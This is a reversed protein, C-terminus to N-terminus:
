PSTPVTPIEQLTAHLHQSCLPPSSQVIDLSHLPGQFSHTTCNQFSLPSRRMPPPPCPQAPEKAPPNWHASAPARARSQSTSHKHVASLPLKPCLIGGLRGGQRRPQGQSSLSPPHPHPLPTSPLHLSTPGASSPHPPTHTHLPTPAPSWTGAPWGLRPSEQLFASFLLAGPARARPSLCLTRRPLGLRTNPVNVSGRGGGGGRRAGHLQARPLAQLQRRVPKDKKPQTGAEQPLGGQPRQRGSHGPMAPACARACPPGSFRGAERPHTLLPVRGSPSCCGPSPAEASHLPGSTPPPREPLLETRCRWRRQSVRAPPFAGAGAQATACSGLPRGRVPPAAAAALCASWPPPKGWALPKHWTGGYETNPLRDVELHTEEGLKSTQRSAPKGPKGQSPKHHTGPSGPSKNWLAPPKPRTRRARYDTWTELPSPLSPSHHFQSSKAEQCVQAKPHSTNTQTLPLSIPKRDPGPM